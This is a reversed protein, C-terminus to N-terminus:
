RNLKKALRYEFIPRSFRRNIRENQRDSPQSGVGIGRGFCSHGMQPLTWTMAFGFTDTHCGEGDDFPFDVGEDHLDLDRLDDMFISMEAARLILFDKAFNMATNKFKDLAKMRDIRFNFSVSNCFKLDSDISM